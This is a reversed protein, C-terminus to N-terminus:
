VKYLHTHELITTIRPIVRPRISRGGAGVRATRRRAPSASASSGIPVRRISATVETFVAGRGANFHPSDELLTIAQTVADLSSGGTALTEYGARVAEELTARVQREREASFEGKEITGSGGHIAIAIPPNGDAAETTVVVGLLMTALIMLGLNMNINM